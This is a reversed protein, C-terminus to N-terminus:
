CGKGSMGWIPPRYASRSPVKFARGPCEAVTPDSSLSGALRNASMGAWFLWGDPCADAASLWAPGTHGQGEVDPPRCRISHRSPLWCQGSCTAEAMQFIISRGHRVIRAGIKM